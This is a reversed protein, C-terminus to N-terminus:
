MLLARLDGWRSPKPVPVVPQLAAHRTWARRSPYPPHAPTCEGQQDVGHQVAHALTCPWLRTPPATSFSSALRRCFSCLRNCFLNREKRRAVREGLIKLSTKWFNSQKDSLWSTNILPFLSIVDRALRAILIFLPWRSEVPAIGGGLPFISEQPQFFIRVIYHKTTREFDM